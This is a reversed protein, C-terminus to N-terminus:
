PFDVRLGWIQYQPVGDAFTSSSASGAVFVGDFTPIRLSGKVFAKWSGSKDVLLPWWPASPCYPMLLTGVEKGIHMHRLVRPILYPPPFIWNNENTWSVTFADTSECGPNLYRSSFRPLQKTKNSAFRDVTHPGWLKDVVWFCSPDLMYDDPDDLRSLGDATDNWDRSGWEVTLRINHQRCIQYILVAEMHLDQNRSGVTMIREAGQNDTRHRVEKGALQSALSALVLRAARLERFTSSRVSEEKSWSGVAKQDGLEVAYGGWAVDSADSYTLVEVKPSASWIPQGGNEFNSHWFMVENRADEELQFKKDWSSSEQVARYLERTWLRVVPGLALGMSSLSGTLRAIHRASVVFQCDLVHQLMDKFAAVRGDPVIFKGQSLEASIEGLDRSALARDVHELVNKNLKYQKKNGQYRFEPEAVKPVATSNLVKSKTTAVEAQLRLM